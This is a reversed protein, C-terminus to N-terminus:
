HLFYHTKLMKIDIYPTKQIGKLKLPSLAVAGMAGGRFGGSLTVLNNNKLLRNYCGIWALGSM